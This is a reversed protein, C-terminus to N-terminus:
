QQPPPGGYGSNDPPPAQGAGNQNPDPPPQPVGGQQAGGYGGNDSPAQSPPPAGNQNYGGGTNDVPMGNQDPGSQYTAGTQDTNDGLPAVPVPEGNDVPAAKTKTKAEPKTKMPMPAPPAAAPAPTSAAPPATSPPDLKFSSFFRDTNPHAGQPCGLIMFYGEHGIITVRGHADADKDTSRATFELWGRGNVIVYHHETVEGGISEAAGDMFRQLVKDTDAIMTEPPYNLYGAGYATLKNPESMYLILNGPRDGSPTPVTLAKTTETPTTPMDVTFHGEVAHYPKLDQFFVAQNLVTRVIVTASLCILIYAIGFIAWRQQVTRFQPLGGPFHRYRWGLDNAYKALGARALLYVGSSVGYIMDTYGTSDGGTDTMRHSAWYFGIANVGVMMLTFFVALGWLRHAWCWLWDLGLAGWSFGMTEIEDPPVDNEGSNNESADVFKYDRQEDPPPPTTMGPSQIPPADVIPGYPAQTPQQPYESM